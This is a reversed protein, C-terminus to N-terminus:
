AHSIAVVPIDRTASANPGVSDRASHYSVDTTLSYGEDFGHNLTYSLQPLQETQEDWPNSYASSRKSAKEDDSYGDGDAADGKSSAAELDARSLRREAAPPNFVEVLEEEVLARTQETIAHQPSRREVIVDAVEEVQRGDACHCLEVICTVYGAYSALFKLALLVPFM